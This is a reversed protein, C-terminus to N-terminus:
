AINNEPIEKKASRINESPVACSVDVRQGRQDPTQVPAQVLIPVL